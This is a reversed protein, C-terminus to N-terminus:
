KKNVLVKLVYFLLELRRIFSCLESDGMVWHALSIPTLLNKINSPVIKIFCVYGNSHLKGSNQSFLTQFENLCPLNYPKFAISSYIKCREKTLTESLFLPNKVVYRNLYLMYLSSM